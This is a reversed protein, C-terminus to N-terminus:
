VVRRLVADGGAVSASGALECDYLMDDGMRFVRTAPRRCDALPERGALRLAPRGSGILVAAVAVQLRQMLGAELFASITIGGGEVFIRTCGRAALQALLDALDLRGAREAVVLTGAPDDLSATSSALRARLTPAAGDAFVRLRADLRGRPDLIVRLPNAGSALRTTLRPDDAAATGAGVLVADCLARMRHLHLINAPGTVFSSDGAATAIFGDLSQGVHGVVMPAGPHASAFPLYLDLMPLRPDDVPLLSQWGYGPQWRLEARPDGDPLAALTADPGLWAGAAQSRRAHDASAAAAARVLSWGSTTDEPKM